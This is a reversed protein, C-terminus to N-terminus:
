KKRHPRCPRDNVAPYVWLRRTIGLHVDLNHRRGLDLDDLSKKALQTSEVVLQGGCSFFSRHDIGL